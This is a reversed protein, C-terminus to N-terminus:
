FHIITANTLTLHEFTFQDVHVSKKFYSIWMFHMRYKNLGM